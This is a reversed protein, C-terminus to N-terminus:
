TFLQSTNVGHRRAVDHVTGGAAFTEGVLRRKDEDSWRRRARGQFIEVRAM